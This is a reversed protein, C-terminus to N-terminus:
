EVLQHAVGSLLPERQDPKNGVHLPSQLVLQPEIVQKRVLGLCVVDPTAPGTRDVGDYARVIERLETALHQDIDQARMGHGDDAPNKLLVREEDRRLLEQALQVLSPETPQLYCTSLAGFRLALTRDGLVPAEFGTDAVEDANKRNRCNGGSGLRAPDDTRQEFHHKAHQAEIECGCLDFTGSVCHGDGQGPGQMRCGRVGQRRLDGVGDVRPPAIM